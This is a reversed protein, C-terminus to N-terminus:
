EASAPKAELAKKVAIADKTQKLEAAAAAGAEKLPDRQPPRGPPSPPTKREAYFRAVTSAEDMYTRCKGLNRVAATMNKQFFGKPDQNAMEAILMVEDIPNLPELRGLFGQGIKFLDFDDKEPIIAPIMTGQVSRVGRLQELLLMRLVVKQSALVCNAKAAAEPDIRFDQATGRENFWRLVPAANKPAYAAESTAVKVVAAVADARQTQCLLAALDMAPLEKSQNFQDIWDPINDSGIDAWVLQGIAVHLAVAAPNENNQHAAKYLSTTGWFAAGTPVHVLIAWGSGRSSQNYIVKGDVTRRTGEHYILEHHLGVFLCFEFQDSFGTKPWPKIEKDPFDAPVTTPQTATGADPIIVKLGAKELPEVLEALWEEKGEAPWYTKATEGGGWPSRALLAVYKGKDRAAWAAAAEKGLKAAQEPPTAAAKDFVYKLQVHDKDVDKVQRLERVKDLEQAWAASAVAVLAIAGIFRNVGIEEYTGAM